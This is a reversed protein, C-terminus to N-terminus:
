SPRALGAAFTILRMAAAAARGDIDAAPDYASLTVAAISFDAAIASLASEVDDVTLGGPVSYSNAAAVGSDLVDLDIHVYMRDVHEGVLALARPLRTRVESPEVLQIASDALVEVEPADLDRAGILCVRNEAVPTFGPVTAALRAFCRGTIVALATGDLFGSTTTEPTNLDGHADFWAVGVDGGIGAITGVATNCNGALVIPLRGAERASAVGVALMRMLDFSTQIESQWSGAPLEAISAHVTHGRNTLARQLGAEILREPGAGMRVGRNGSDYPVALLQVDM